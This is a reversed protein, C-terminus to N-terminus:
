PRPRGNANVSPSPWTIAPHSIPSTPMHTPSPRLSVIGLRSAYPSAPTPLIGGPAVSTNSVSNIPIAPTLSSTGAGVGAGPEPESPPDPSSFSSMGASPGSSPDCSLGWSLGSPPGSPPGSSSFSPSHRRRPGKASSMWPARPPKAKSERTHFRQRSVGRRGSLIQANSTDFCTNPLTSSCRAFRNMLMNELPVKSM